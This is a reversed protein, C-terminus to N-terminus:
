ISTCLLPIPSSSYSVTSSAAERSTEVGASIFSSSSESAVPTTTTFRRPTGLRKWSRVTSLLTARFSLSKEGVSRKNNSAAAKLKWGACVWSGLYRFSKVHNAVPKKVLARGDTTFSYNLFQQNNIMQHLFLSTEM